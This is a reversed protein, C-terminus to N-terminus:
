DTLHTEFLPFSDVLQKSSYNGVTCGNLAREVDGASIHTIRAIDLVSFGMDYWYKAHHCPNRDHKPLKPIPKRTIFTDVEATSRRAIFAEVKTTPKRTTSESPCPPPMTSPDTEFIRDILYSPVKSATGNVIRSIALETTGFFEGLFSYSYGTTSFASLLRKAAESRDKASNTSDAHPTSKHAKPKPYPISTITPILKITQMM